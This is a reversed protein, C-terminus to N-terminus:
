PFSQFPLVVLSPREREVLTHTGSSLSWKQPLDVEVDLRYGRGMVTRLFVGKSDGIARRIERVCQAISDETVIVNPWVNELTRGPFGCTRREPRSDPSNWRRLACGTNASGVHDRLEGRAVDLTAGGFRVESNPM